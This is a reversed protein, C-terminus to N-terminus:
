GGNSHFNAQMSANWMEEVSRKCVKEPLSYAKKADNLRLGLFNKLEGLEKMQFRVSINERTRQIEFEGDGTIILNDM